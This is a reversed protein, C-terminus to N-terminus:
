RMWSYGVYYQMMNEGYNPKKRGANSTHIYRTGLLISSKKGNMFEAGFGGGIMFDNALPLDKSSHRLLAFGLGGDGYFNISSNIPWRYRATAFVAFTQNTVSPYRLTPTGTRTENYFAEWILEGPIKKYITLKPDPKGVALSFGNGIRPEASGLVIIAHSYGAYTYYRVDSGVLQGISSSSLFCVAGWFVLGRM